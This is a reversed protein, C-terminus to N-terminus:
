QPPHFVPQLVFEADDVGRNLELMRLAFHRVSADDRHAFGLMVVTVLARAPEWLTRRLVDDHRFPSYLTTMVRFNFFPFPISPNTESRSRLRFRATGPRRLRRPWGGSAKLRRRRAPM